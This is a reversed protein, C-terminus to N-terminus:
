YSLSEPVLFPNVIKSLTVILTINIIQLVQDSSTTASIRLAPVSKSQYALTDIMTNM